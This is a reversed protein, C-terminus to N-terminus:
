VSSYTDQVVKNHKRNHSMVRPNNSHYFQEPNMRYSRLQMQQNKTKNIREADKDLQISDSYKVINKANQM